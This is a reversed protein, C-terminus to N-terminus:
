LAKRNFISHVKYGLAEIADMGGEMRDLIVIVMEVKLGAAEVREIAKITSSGTTIVDEVIVVRQGKAVPGEIWNSTGHSKKEKRVVFVRINYGSQFAIMSTALAIPDAGLTMGGIADIERDKIMEFIVSGILTAGKPNLTVKRLDAYFDSVKGSSLVFKGYKVADRKILEKLEQYNNM